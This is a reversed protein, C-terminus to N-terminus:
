GHFRRWGDMLTGQHGAILRLIRRAEREDCGICERVKLEILDIVVVWGPGLIHVHAPPHDNPYIVVRLGDIRLVTPM